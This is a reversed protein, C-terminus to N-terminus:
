GRFFGVSELPPRPDRPLTLRRDRDSQRNCHDVVASQADNPGPTSTYPPADDKPGPAGSPNSPNVNEPNPAGASPGPGPTTNDGAGTGSPAVVDLMIDGGTGTGAGGAGASPNVTEDYGPPPPDAETSGFLARIWKCVRGGTNDWLRRGWICFGIFSAVSLFLVGRTTWSEFTSLGTDSGGTPSDVGATPLFMPGGDRAAITRRPPPPPTSSSLSSAKAPVVFIPTEFVVHFTTASTKDQGVTTPNFESRTSACLINRARSNVETDTMSEPCCFLAGEAPGEPFGAPRGVWGNPCEGPIYVVENAAVRGSDDRERGVHGPPCCQWDANVNAFCGRQYVLQKAHDVSAPNTPSPIDSASRSYWLISSSCSPGQTFATPETTVISWTNIDVRGLPSQTALTTYPIFPIILLTAWRSQQRNLM